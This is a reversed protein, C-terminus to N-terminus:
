LFSESIIQSRLSDDDSYINTESINGCMIPTAINIKLSKKFEAIIDETIIPYSEIMTDYHQSCYKLVKSPHERDLPNRSLQIKIYQYFKEWNIAALRHQENLESIKLFQYVTTIVGTTINVIGILISGLQQYNGFMSNAFNATGCATSLVIVPIMFLANRHKYKRHSKLHMLHYCQAKESWEKLLMEEEKKWFDRKNEEIKEM